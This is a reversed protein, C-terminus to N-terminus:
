SLVTLKGTVISWRIGIRLKPTEIRAVFYNDFKRVDTIQPNESCFCKLYEALPRFESYETLAIYPKERNM